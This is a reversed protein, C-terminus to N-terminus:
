PKTEEMGSARCSDPRATRGDPTAAAAGASARWARLENALTQRLEQALREEPEEQWVLLNERAREVVEEIEAPSVGARKLDSRVLEELRAEDLWRRSLSRFLRDRVIETFM